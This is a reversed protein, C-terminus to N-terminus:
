LFDGTQNQNFFNVEPIPIYLELSTKDINFKFYNRKNTIEKM